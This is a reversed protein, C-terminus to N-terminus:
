KHAKRRKKDGKKQAVTRYCGAANSKNAKGGKSRSTRNKATM